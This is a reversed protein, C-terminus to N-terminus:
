QRHERMGGGAPVANAIAKAVFGVTVCLLVYAAFGTALSEAVGAVVAAVVWSWIRWDPEWVPRDSGPPPTRTDILM